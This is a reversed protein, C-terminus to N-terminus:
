LGLIGEIQELAYNSGKAADIVHLMAKEKYYNILPETKVLYTEFRTKFSEENDDSRQYLKGGCLDCINEVKPTMDPNFINYIAGCDTCLRRGTIRELLIEKPVDLVIVKATSLNLNKSIEEYKDAQEINRPFGDLIFGNKVDDESLRNTLIEFMQEDNVFLGQELIAKIKNGLEDEKAAAERLMDGTSIHVYNYKEKLLKSVTGKGAGPAAILIVNEM